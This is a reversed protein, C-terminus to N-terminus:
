AQLHKQYATIKVRLDYDDYELICEGKKVRTDAYVHVKSVFSAYKNKLVYHSSGRLYGYGFIEKKPEPKLATIVNQKVNVAENKGGVFLIVAVAVFMGALVGLLAVVWSKM